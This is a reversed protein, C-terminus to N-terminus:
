PSCPTEKPTPPADKLHQHLADLAYETTGPCGAKNWRALFAARSDPDLAYLGRRFRRWDTALRARWLAEAARAEAERRNRVQAVPEPPPMLPALLPLAERELRQKRLLALEKRRTWEWRAAKGRPSFRV